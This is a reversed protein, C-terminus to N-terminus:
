LGRDAGGLPGFLRRGNEWVDAALAELPVGRVQAATRYVEVVFAPENKKGRVSQPALYPSDTELLLMDRPVMACARRSEEAKPYTIPGAFSILFGMDLASRAQDVGGSFCHLVGPPDPLGSLFSRLLDFAPRYADEGDRGSRLHLIVPRGVRCALDLQAEFAELQVERPSNCYWFDLGIEGVARVERHTCLAELEGLLGQDLDKADHPHLGVSAVVSVGRVELSLGHARRSSPLDYGAVLASAVGAAVCRGVESELQRVGLSEHNWHCHSDFFV